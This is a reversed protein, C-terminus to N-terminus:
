ITKIVKCPNGVALVNPPIDHTVISGAGVVVNEGITVGPLIIVGSAIWAGDKIIVPRRISILQRAALKLKYDHYSTLIQVDHGFSVYDGITIQDNCDLLTNVLSCSKGIIPQYNVNFYRPKPDYNEM